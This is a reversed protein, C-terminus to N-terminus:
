IEFDIFAIEGPEMWEGFPKPPNRVREVTRDIMTRSERDPTLGSRFGSGAFGTKCKLNLKLRTREGSTNVVVLCVQTDEQAGEVGIFALYELDGKRGAAVNGCAQPASVDSELASPNEGEIEIEEADPDPAAVGSARGKGVPGASGTGEGHAVLTPCGRVSAGLHRM